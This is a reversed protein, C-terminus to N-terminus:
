VETNEEQRGRKIAIYKGKEREQEKLGQLNGNVETECGNFSIPWSLRPKWFYPSLSM